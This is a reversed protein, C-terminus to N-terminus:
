PRLKKFTEETLERSIELQEHCNQCGRLVEQPASLRDVDGNYHVRKHRHVNQLLWNILCGKLRIECTEIGNDEWHKSLRKNAELNARGIKGIRSLGKPKKKVVKKLKSAKKKELAEQYTLKKFGRRKM